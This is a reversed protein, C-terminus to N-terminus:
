RGAILMQLAKVGVDNNSYALAFMILAVGFLLVLLIEVVMFRSGKTKKNYIYKRNGLFGDGNLDTM